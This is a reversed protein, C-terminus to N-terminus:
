SIYRSAFVQITVASAVSAVASIFDGPELVVGVLESLPTPENTPMGKSKFLVKEDSVSSGNEVRHLTLTQTAANVNIAWAATITYRESTPCTALTTDTNGVYTGDVLAIPVRTTM